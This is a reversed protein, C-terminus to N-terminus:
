SIWTQVAEELLQPEVGDWKWLHDGGRGALVGWMTGESHQWYSSGKGLPYAQTFRAVFKKDIPERFFSWFHVHWRYERDPNKRLWRQFEKEHLYVVGQGDDEIIEQAALLGPINSTFVIGPDSDVSMLKHLVQRERLFAPGHHELWAVVSGGIIRRQWEQAGSLDTISPLPIRKRLDTAEQRLNAFWSNM